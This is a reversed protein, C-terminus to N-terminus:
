VRHDWMSSVVMLEKGSRFRVKSIESAHFTSNICTAYNPMDYGPVQSFAYPGFGYYTDLCILRTSADYGDYGGLYSTGSQVPDNGAYHAVAEQLGLEYIIREGKYKIDYFRMGTDRTFSLTLWDVVASVDLLLYLGDM